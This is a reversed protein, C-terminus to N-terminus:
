GARASNVCGWGEYSTTLDAVSGIKFRIRIIQDVYTLSLFHQSQDLNRGAVAGSGSAPAPRRPGASDPRSDSRGIEGLLVVAGPKLPSRRPRSSLIERERRGRPEQPRASDDQQLTAPFSSWRRTGLSTAGSRRGDRGERAGSGSV